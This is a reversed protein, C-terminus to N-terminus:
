FGANLAENLAAKSDKLSRIEKDGGPTVGSRGVSRPTRSADNRLKDIAADVIAQRDDQIKKHAAAVDNDTENAAVWLVEVMDKTNRKYGLKEAEGYVNDIATEQERTTRETKSFEALMAAVEAKTLPRNEDDADDPAAVNGGLADILQQARQVATTPSAQIDRVLGLLFERDNDDYGAFADEFTKARTRYSANERRLDEVYKRDFTESEGKDDLKADAPPSTKDDAPTDDDARDIIAELAPDAM